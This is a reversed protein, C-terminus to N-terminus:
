SALLSVEFKDLAEFNGLSLREKVKRAFNDLTVSKPVNVVLGSYMLEDLNKYTRGVINTTHSRTLPMIKSFERCLPETNQVDTLSFPNARLLGYRIYTEEARPPGKTMLIHWAVTNFVAIHDFLIKKHRRTVLSEDLVDYVDRIFCVMTTGSPVGSIHNRSFETSLYQWTCGTRALETSGWITQNKALPFLGSNQERYEDIAREVIEFTFRPKQSKKPM